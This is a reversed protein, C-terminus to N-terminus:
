ETEWIDNRQMLKHRARISDNIEDVCVCAGDTHVLIVYRGGEVALGNVADTKWNMQGTSGHLWDNVGSITENVWCLPASWSLVKLAMM